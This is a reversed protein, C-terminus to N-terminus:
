RENYEANAAQMGVIWYLCVFSIVLTPVVVNVFKKARRLKRANKESNNNQREEYMQRLANIQVDERRSILELRREGGEAFKNVPQVMTINDKNEGIEVPMGHHNIERDSDDRLYDIYTHCLVEVFPILLNFILWIDIMKVYATTPLNNSVNIFMTTLVLMVTLNVTIVAEFFFAKFFNTSHGIVNLLITPTYVTLINSLLRRGLISLSPQRFLIRM